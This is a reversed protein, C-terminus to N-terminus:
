DANMYCSYSSKNVCAYLGAKCVKFLMKRNERKKKITLTWLDVGTTLQSQLWVMESDM